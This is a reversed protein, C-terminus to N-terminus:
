NKMPPLYSLCGVLGLSETETNETGAVEAIWMHEEACLHNLQGGHGRFGMESKELMETHRHSVRGNEVVKEQPWREVWVSHCLIDLSGSDHSQKMNDSGCPLEIRLM